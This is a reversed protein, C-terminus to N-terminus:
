LEVTLPNRIAQSEDSADESPPVLSYGISNKDLLALGPKALEYVGGPLGRLRSQTALVYFGIVEDAESAFRIRVM